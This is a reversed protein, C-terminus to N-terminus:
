SSWPWPTRQQSSIRWCKRRRPRPAPAQATEVALTLVNADRALSLRALSADAHLMTPNTGVAEAVDSNRRPMAPNPPPATEAGQGQRLAPVGHAAPDRLRAALAELGEAEAVFQAHIVPDTSCNEAAGRKFAAHEDFLEADAATLGAPMPLNM